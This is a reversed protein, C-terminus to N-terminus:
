KALPVEYAITPDVPNLLIIKDWGDHQINMREPSDFETGYGIRDDFILWWESYNRKLSAKARARTKADICLNLNIERESELWYASNNDLDDYFGWLFCDTHSGVRRRIKLGLNDTIPVIVEDQPYKLFEKLAHDMEPKLRGWKPFPRKFRARVSWSVGAPPPGLSKLFKRMHHAFSHVEDGDRKSVLRGNENVSNINLLRVEVGITGNVLFDPFKREGEPQPDIDTYGLYRLYREAREESPELSM